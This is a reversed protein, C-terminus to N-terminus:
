NIKISNVMKDVPKEWDKMQDKTCNFIIMLANGNITTITFYNYVMQDKAKTLLKFYNIRKGNKIKYGTDLVVCNPHQKKIADLQINTQDQKLPIDKIENLLLNVELNKDSLMVTAKIKSSGYKMEIEDKTMVHMNDPVIMELKNNLFLAQKWETQAWVMLPLVILLGTKFLQKM